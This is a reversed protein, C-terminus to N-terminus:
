SDEITSLWAATEEVTAPGARELAHVVELANAPRNDRAKQLLQEIVDGLAAADPRRRVIPTHAKNVVAYLTTIENDGSFPRDGTLLWYLTAGLSFLDSRADLPDGLIQEPSM